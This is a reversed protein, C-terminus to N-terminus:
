TLQAANTSVPLGSPLVVLVDSNSSHIEVDQQIAEAVARRITPLGRGLQEGIGLVRAASALHVNRPLSIGGSQFLEELPALPGLPGGPSWIELRDDFLRVAVRGPLRLDRHLVANVIAERVAAEPYEVATEQPSVQNALSRSQERVFELAQEVLTAVPGELDARAVIPDSITCGRVKVATVGWHPQTLQPLHGFLLLGAGTPVVGSGTKQALGLKTAVLELPHMALLHSARRELYQELAQRDLDEFTAGHQAGLEHNSTGSGFSM